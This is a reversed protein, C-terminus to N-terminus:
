SRYTLVGQWESYRAVICTQIQGLEQIYPGRAVRLVQGRHVDTDTGADTHLSEKGSQTGPWSARRYSDGRRYTLVGQWESYRAVICTKGVRSSGLLVLRYCNRAPPKCSDECSSSSGSGSQQSCMASEAEEESVATRRSPVEGVPMAVDNPSARSSGCLRSVADRFCSTAGNLALQLGTCPGPVVAASMPGAVDRCGRGNDVTVAGLAGAAPSSAETHEGTVPLFTAAQSTSDVADRVVRAGPVLPFQAVAGRVVRAGLVLPFQAVAGRVVRARLVQPFQAVSGRMVRARLVLPFQAVAGRVVRAGSVLPFQAVADRVV